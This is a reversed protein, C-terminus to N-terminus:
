RVDARRESLVWDVRPADRVTPPELKSLMREIVSTPVVRSRSANRRQTEEWTTELYVIRVTAGYDRCLRVVPARAFDAINTANWVFRRKARLHEKAIERARALVLDPGDEPAIKMEDRLDDLSIVPLDPFTRKIYADKGTGPLGSLLVVEGWTDDYLDIHPSDVRGSFYAYRSFDSAFQFSADYVGSEQAVDRFVDLAALSEAINDAIRGRLDAEVLTALLRNSFLETTEGESAARLVVFEPNEADWLHVPASHFRILACVTERFRRASASGALGFRRWLLERAVLAGAKAHGPSTIKGDEIRTRLPKAVDHLLAAVFLIARKEPTEARWADSEVLREVVLRTHTWVDGESHWVPNQPTERMQAIEPALLSRELTAWDVAAGPEPIPLGPLQPFAAPQPADATPTESANFPKPQM